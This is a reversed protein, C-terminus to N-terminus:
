QFYLTDEPV